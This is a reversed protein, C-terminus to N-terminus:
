ESVEYEWAEKRGEDVLRGKGDMVLEQAQTKNNARVEYTDVSDLKVEVSFTKIM